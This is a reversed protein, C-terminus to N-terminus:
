AIRMIWRVRISRPQISQTASLSNTTTNVSATGSTTNPPDISHTHASESSTNPTASGTDGTGGSGTDGGIATGTTYTHGDGHTSAGGADDCNGAAQTWSISGGSVPEYSIGDVGEENIQLKAYLTGYDHTHSPGTHTHSDVTHSHASGGGSTFSGINVDHTHADVTHDHQLNIQHSANGVPTTAWIATDVDGGGETGFGVLYRNSLDPTTFSGAGNLTTTTGDCYKWYTTNFTLPSGAPGGSGFDYFAIISGVPVNNASSVIGTVTAFSADGNPKVWWNGANGLIDKETGSNTISIADANAQQEIKIADGTGQNTIYIPEGVGSASKSIRIGVVNTALSWLITNAITGINTDDISGNYDNLINNFEGNLNASTLLDGPVWIKIRAILSM